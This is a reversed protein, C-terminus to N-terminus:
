IRKNLDFWGWPEESDAFSDISSKYESSVWLVHIVKSQCLTGSIQILNTELVIVSFIQPVMDKVASRMLCLSFVCVRLWVFSEWPKFHFCFVKMKFVIVWSNLSMVNLWSFPRFSPCAPVWLASLSILRHLPSVAIWKCPSLLFSLCWNKGTSCIFSLM